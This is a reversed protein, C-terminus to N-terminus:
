PKSTSTKPYNKAYFQKLDIFLRNPAKFITFDESNELPPPPNYSHHYGPQGEVGHTKMYLSEDFHDIIKVLFQGFKHNAQGM